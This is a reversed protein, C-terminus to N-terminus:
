NEPGYTKMLIKNILESKYKEFKSLDFKNKVEEFTINEKASIIQKKQCHNENSCNKDPIFKDSEEVSNTDSRDIPNRDSYLSYGYPDYFQNLLGKLVSELSNYASKTKRFFSLAKGELLDPIAKFIWFEIEWGFKAEIERLRDIFDQVKRTDGNFKPGSNLVFKM